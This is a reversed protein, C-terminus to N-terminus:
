RSGAGADRWGGTSASYAASGRGSAGADRWDRTASTSDGLGGTTPVPDGQTQVSTNCQSALYDPWASPLVTGLEQRLIALCPVSAVSREGGALASALAAGSSLAVAAVLSCTVLWKFSRNIYM